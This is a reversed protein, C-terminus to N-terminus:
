LATSRHGARDFPNTSRATPMRPRRPRRGMIQKIAKSRATPCLAAWSGAPRGKSVATFLAWRTARSAPENFHATMRPRLDQDSTRAASVWTKAIARGAPLLALWTDAQPIMPSRRSTAKSLDSDVIPKTCHLGSCRRQRAAASATHDAGTQPTMPPPTLNHVGTPGGSPCILPM